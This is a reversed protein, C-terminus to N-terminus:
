LVRKNNNYIKKKKIVAATGPPHPGTDLYSDCMTHFHKSNAILTSLTQYANECTSKEGVEGHNVCGVRVLSLHPGVAAKLEVMILRNCECYM